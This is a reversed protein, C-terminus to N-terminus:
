GALTWRGEAVLEHLPKRQNPTERTQLADPLRAKDGQRGIAVVAHVAVDDPVELRAQLAAADFGGMAHTIWGQHHAELALSMWAAGADFAHWPAPVAADQGPPTTTRTSLVAVLASAHQAWGQNFPVLTALLADFAPTGALGYVFRWPQSNSASPAWRAAEFCAMLTDLPMPEGTFARPSWRETFQPAIPLTPTRADSMTM